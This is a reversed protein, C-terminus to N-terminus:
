AGNRLRYNASSSSIMGPLAIVGAASMANIVPVM